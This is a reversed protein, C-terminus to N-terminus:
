FNFVRSMEITAVLSWNDEPAVRATNEEKSHSWLGRSSSKNWAAGVLSWKKELCFYIYLSSVTLCINVLDWSRLVYTHTYKNREFAYLVIIVCCCIKQEVIIQNMLMQIFNVYNWMWVRANKFVTLLFAGWIVM